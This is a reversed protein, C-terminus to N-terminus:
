SVGKTAVHTALAEAARAFAAADPYRLGHVVRTVGIDALEHVVDAARAPEGLPLTTVMVVEPRPRGSKAALEHLQEIAPRLAVPDSGGNPMWGDGLEVARRFAHPPAGGVFIPPRPPRPLFLFRQGNSEVEDADFCRRLFALTADTVRGREKRAVGVARFEAEMWGAGVGLRLRGGSLEQISAVWKATALPPRYPLVLVGTGLGIRTTAAALFALTALPDLYRGGSGEAEDPPIAIHDAVWLDDIGAAEAARACALITERTSQPGMNRLYLGLKM